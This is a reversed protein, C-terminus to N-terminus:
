IYFLPLWIVVVRNVLMILCRILDKPVQVLLSEIRRCRELREAEMTEYTSTKREADRMANKSINHNISRTKEFDFKSEEILEAGGHAVSSHEDADWHGMAVPCAGNCGDRALTHSGSALSNGGCM